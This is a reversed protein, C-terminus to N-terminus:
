HLYSRQAELANSTVVRRIDEHSWPIVADKGDRYAPAAVAENEFAAKSLLPPSCSPVPDPERRDIDYPYVPPLVALQQQPQQQSPNEAYPQAPSASPDSFLDAVNDRRSNHAYRGQPAYVSGNNTNNNRSLAEQAPKSPSPLPTYSPSVGAAAPLPQHTIPNLRPPPSAAANASSAVSYNRIRPQQPPLQIHTDPLEKWDYELTQLNYQNPKGCVEEKKKLPM